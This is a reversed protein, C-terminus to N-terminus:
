SVPRPFVSAWPGRLIWHPVFAQFSMVVASGLDLCLGLSNRIHSKFTVFVNRDLCLGQKQNSYGM